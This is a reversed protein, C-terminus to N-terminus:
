EVGSELEVRGEKGERKRDDRVERQKEGGWVCM